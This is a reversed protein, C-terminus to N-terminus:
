LRKERQTSVLSDIGFILLISLVSSAVIRLLTLPFNHLTFAQTLFLVACYITVLTAMYKLYGTIGLSDMSPIPDNDEDDRLIFMDFVPRRVITMVVCALSNMGQTNNFMDVFLGFLFAITLTWNLSYNLPLRLILYIYIVPMAVSFLVIKSCIVQAVLLAVFLILFHFLTNKM